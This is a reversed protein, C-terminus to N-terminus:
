RRLGCRGHLSDMERRCSRTSRTSDQKSWGSSITSCRSRHHWRFCLLRWKWPNRVARGVRVAALFVPMAEKPMGGKSGEIGLVMDRATNLQDNAITAFEFVADEVGEAHGGYRFVDDQNVGNKATLEAPIIMRGHKAHFPLARLLTSFTQAAGLHSAAHSLTSSPLSLLSLLLYLVTSSTSEAHSALSEVTM